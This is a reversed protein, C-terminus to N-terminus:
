FVRMIAPPCRFVKQIYFNSTYIQKSFDPEQNYMSDITNVHLSYINHHTLISCAQSNPINTRNVLYSQFPGNVDDGAGYTLCFEVHLHGYLCVFLNMLQSIHPHLRNQNSIRKKTVLDPDIRWGDDIERTCFVIKYDQPVM